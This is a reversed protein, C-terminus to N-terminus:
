PMLVNPILPRVAVVDDKNKAAELAVAVAIAATGAIGLRGFTDVVMLYDGISFAKEAIASVQGSVTVAAARNHEANALFFGDATCATAGDAGAFTVENGTQGVIKAAMGATVATQTRFGILSEGPLVQVNPM